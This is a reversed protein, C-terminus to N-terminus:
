AEHIVSAEVDRGSVAMFANVLELIRTEYDSEKCKLTVFHVTEQTNADFVDLLYSKVRNEEISQRIESLLAQVGHCRWCGPCFAHEREGTEVFGDTADVSQTM